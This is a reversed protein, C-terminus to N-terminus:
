PASAISTAGSDGSIPTVRSRVRPSKARRYVSLHNVIREFDDSFPAPLSPRTSSALIRTRKFKGLLFSRTSAMSTPLIIYRGGLHELVM